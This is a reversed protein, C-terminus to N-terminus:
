FKLKGIWRKVQEMKIELLFLGAIIILIGPVIPLFLGAIGVVLLIIGATIKLTKVYM